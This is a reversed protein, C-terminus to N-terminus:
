RLLGALQELKRWPEGSNMADKALLVADAFTQLYNDKDAVAEGVYLALAANLAVVDQQQQSGKGQLVAKLIEANEQM